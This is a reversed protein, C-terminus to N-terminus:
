CSQGHTSRLHEMMVEALKGVTGARQMDAVSLEIRAVRRMWNRVEIAALSDIVQSAIEDDSMEKKDIAMMRWMARGIENTVVAATDPDHLVSPDQSVKTLLVRMEDEEIKGAPAEVTPLPINAFLSFRADVGWPPLASGKETVPPNYGIGVALPSLHSPSSSDRIALQIGRLVDRESLIPARSTLANHMYESSRSVIGVDEVSGLNIVSAALGQQQRFAAFSDLFTNAAAYNAQGGTQLIGVVSGFLVFFDLSLGEVAQHLNWVGDAKPSVGTLWEEHSMHRLTRDKLSLAMHM